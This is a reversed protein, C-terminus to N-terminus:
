FEELRRSTPLAPTLLVLKTSGFSLLKSGLKTTVTSPGVSVKRVGQNALMLRSM